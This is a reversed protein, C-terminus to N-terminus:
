TMFGTSLRTKQKEVLNGVLEHPYRVLEKTALRIASKSYKDRTIICLNIYHYIEYCTKIFISYFHKQCSLSIVYTESKSSSSSSSSNNNNNNNNNNILDYVFYMIRYLIFIFLSLLWSARAFM